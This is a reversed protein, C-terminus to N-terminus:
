TLYVPIYAHQACEQYHRIVLTRRIYIHQKTMRIGARERKIKRGKEREEREEVKEGERWRQRGRGEWGIEKEMERRRRGRWRQGGGDRVGEMESGRWRRGRGEKAPPQVVVAKARRRM